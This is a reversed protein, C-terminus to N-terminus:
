KSYTCKGAFTTPIQLYPTTWLTVFKCLVLVVIYLTLFNMVINKFPSKKWELSGLISKFSFFIFQSLLLEALLKDWQGKELVLPVKVDSALWQFM